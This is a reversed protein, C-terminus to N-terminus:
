AGLRRARARFDDLARVFEEPSFDPFFTDTFYLQADAMQWMLFGASLHPEGGTRIMLDVPPLQASLLNERLLNGDVEEPEVGAAIVKRVAELMDDTGSYALLVALTKERYDATARQCEEILAVLDAPLKERWRGIVSVGAKREEATGIQRLIREFYRKYIDFLTKKETLSRRTLNELSSGWVSLCDVGREYACDILKELNEAGRRHGDGPSLGAAAAWRRNGDPIISVHM